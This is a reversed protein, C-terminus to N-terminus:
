PYKIIYKNLGIKFINKYEFFILESPMILMEKPIKPRKKFIFKSIDFNSRYSNILELLLLQDKTIDYEFNDVNESIYNKRRM